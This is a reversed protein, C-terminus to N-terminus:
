PDNPRLGKPLLLSSGEKYRAPIEGQGTERSELQTGGGGSQIESEGLFVGSPVYLMERGRHGDSVVSTYFGNPSAGQLLYEGLM